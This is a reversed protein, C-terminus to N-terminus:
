SSMETPLRARNTRVGRAYWLLLFIVGVLVFPSISFFVDRRAARARGESYHRMSASEDWSNIDDSDNGGSKSVGDEGLSYLDFSNRNHIGPFRYIYIHGWPDRTPVEDLYREWKSEPIDPPRRELASLGESQSPFRGCELQFVLLAGTLQRIHALAVFDPVTRAVASAAIGLILFGLLGWRIAIAKVMVLRLNFNCSSRTTPTEM